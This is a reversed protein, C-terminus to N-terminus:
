SVEITHSHPNPNSVPPTNKEAQRYEIAAAVMATATTSNFNKSADLLFIQNLYTRYLSFALEGIISDAMDQQSCEPQLALLPTIAQGALTGCVASPCADRIKQIAPPQEQGFRRPHLYVAKGDRELWSERGLVQELTTSLTLLSVLTLLNFDFKM